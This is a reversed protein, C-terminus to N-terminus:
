AKILVLSFLFVINSGDHKEKVFAFVLLIEERQLYPLSCIDTLGTQIFKENCFLHCFFRLRERLRNHYCFYVVVIHHM